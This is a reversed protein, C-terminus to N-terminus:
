LNLKRFLSRNIYFLLQKSTETTVGIRPYLFEKNDLDRSTFKNPNTTYIFNYNLSRLEKITFDNFHEKKGFPIAFHRIDKKTLNVLLEHNSCIQRKLESHEISGIVFHDYSHNGFDILNNKAILLKIDQKDLYIKPQMNQIKYADKFRHGFKGTKLITNFLDDESKKNIEASFLLNEKYFDDNKLIELNSVWLQNYEIAAGNLFVTYPIKLNQLFSDVNEKISSFGDDFTIAAYNKRKSLNRNSVIEELPIIEFLKNMLTIQNRFNNIPTSYHKSFQISDSNSIDHFLFIVRNGKFIKLFIETSLLLKIFQKLRDM